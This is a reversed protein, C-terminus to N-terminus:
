KKGTKGVSAVLRKTVRAAVQDMEDPSGKRAQDYASWLVLGTKPDVLFITGRIPGPPQDLNKPRLDDATPPSTRSAPYRMNLWKWFEEDLRDTLIADARAPDLVVWLVGANTFRNALFQDLGNAMAMIYVTHVRSLERFDNNGFLSFCFLAAPILSWRVRM